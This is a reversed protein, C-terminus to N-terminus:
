RAPEGHPGFLPLGQIRWAPVSPADPAVLGELDIGDPSDVWSLFRIEVAPDEIWAQTLMRQPGNVIREGRVQRHMEVAAGLIARGARRVAPNVDEEHEVLAYIPRRSASTDDGAVVRVARKTTRRPLRPPFVAGGDQSVQGIPAVQTEFALLMPGVRREIAEPTLQKLALVLSLVGDDDLSRVKAIISDLQEAGADAFADTVAITRVRPANDTAGDHALPIAKKMLTKLTSKAITSAAERLATKTAIAGADTVFKALPGSGKAVGLSGVTVLADVLWETVTAAFKEDVEIAGKLRERHATLVENLAAAALISARLVEGEQREREEAPLHCKAPNATRADLGNAVDSECPEDALARDAAEDASTPLTWGLPAAAIGLEALAEAVTAGGNRYGLRRVVAFSSRALKTLQVHIEARSIIKAAPDSEPVSALLQAAQTGEKLFTAFAATLAIALQPQTGLQLEMTRARAAARRLMLWGARFPDVSQAALDFPELPAAGEGPGEGKRQVAPGAGGGLGRALVDAASQGAVVLDAVADAHVEYPDGARGVGGALHVGAKQQVVHAAEHAATHLDPPSAFAVRDGTAYATAGIAAAAATAPGGVTATIGGVDHDPGFARQIQDRYPLASTAGDVGAAAIAHIRDADDPGAADAVRQVPDLHLGFVHAFALDAMTLTSAGPEPQAVPPENAVPPESHSRQLHRTTPGGGVRGVADSTSTREGPGDQRRGHENSM